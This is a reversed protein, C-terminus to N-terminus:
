NLLELAIEINKRAKKRMENCIEKSKETDKNEICRDVFLKLLKTDINEVPLFYEQELYEMFGDVKPDYKIAIVPTNMSVAYILTHLRMALVFEADRIIGITNEITIRKRIIYAKNQMKEAIRQSIVIDAPHQMPIFIVSLNYKEIIYDAISAIKEEFDPPNYKWDRMSICVYSQAEINEYEFIRSIEKKSSGDLIMAPDSTVLSDVSINMKELEEKSKNERLTIKDVSSNIVNAALRINLKKNVPGIGNAIQMVKLGCKKSFKLISAYYWLSKSSTEDQILSGGGSLLVKAKKIAKYIKVPNFRNYSDVRYIKKTEKPNASLVAIKVDEKQNKLETIMALLLADDGSNKYGYYGSILFDYKKKDKFDSLINNYIKIHTKAFNQASFYTTAVRYIEEGMTKIRSPNKCMEYLKQSFDDSNKAEFLYGTEGDRVLSSIGGVNSAVMPKRMAAGELMSYPFSECLSTLCNIDIFNLFGYIDRVFGLFYAVDQIGLDKALAKLQEKQEGDGAILFRVNKNKEYLKAAGELFIDIGKVYDFRAAIGIYIVGEEKKIEFKEGFVEKPTIEKPVNNFEMGNYVTYIANPRFNREILMDKFGDSVAIFYDIKKLSWANLNTFIIKKLFADFDLLYDSHMTTVIPINIRNKLFQAIFNAMAGHVHLVDIKEDEILKELKKVVSLDFRNKQEILVTEIDKELIEQYFVGPILCVVKCDIYKKLEDLLTFLHTKAGGKDGGRILHLVKM